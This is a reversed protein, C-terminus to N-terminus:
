KPVLAGVCLTSFLDDAHHRNLQLLQPFFGAAKIEALIDKWHGIHRTPMHLKGKIVRSHKFEDARDWAAYLTSGILKANQKKFFARRDMPRCMASVLFLGGPKLLRHTNRLFAKRDKPQPICHLCHADVALDFAEPKLPPVNCIDAQKFRVGLGKSQEKAMAIATKSIDIGVSNFGRKALWRVVPGTGCGIEIAKGKGPAWPQSLAYTMLQELSADLGDRHENQGNLEEWSRLGKAKMRQYAVEHAEYARKKQSM